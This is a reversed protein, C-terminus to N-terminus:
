LRAPARNFYAQKMLMTYDDGNLLETGKPQTYGSFRYSYSVRTPGTAGKKTRIDIVGNAGRSGWIAAAAGDKLVTIEEIDDPSICLLSAFEEQDASAFDFSDDINSEFPIGNLLILPQSNSNISTIGRIRMVTGSGLDGSNAVIDLGAIRGQLADDISPVSVGEIAKTNFKQMAGSYEREPIALAGGGTVLKSAKVQVEKLVNQTELKVDFKRQAGIPLTKRKYGVFSFNLSHSPDKVKLSFNGNFDTLASSYIRGNKDQEVVTAGIFGDPEDDAYVKGTVIVGGSQAYAVGALLCFALWLVVSKIKNEM